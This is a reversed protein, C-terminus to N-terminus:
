KNRKCEAKWSKAMQQKFDKGVTRVFLDAGILKADAPIILTTYVGDKWLVMITTETRLVDVDVPTTSNFNWDMYKMLYYEGKLNQADPVDSKGNGFVLVFLKDKSFELYEKQANPQNQEIKKAYCTSIVANASEMKSKLQEDGGCAAILKKATAMAEDLKQGNMAALMAVLYSDSLFAPNNTQTTELIEAAKMAYDYAETYKQQRSNSVGRMLWKYAADADPAKGKAQDIEILQKLCYDADGHEQASLNYRTLWEYARYVDPDTAANEEGALYVVRRSYKAGVPLLAGM